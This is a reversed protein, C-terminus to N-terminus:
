ASRGAARDHWHVPALHDYYREVMRTDAHGLNKARRKDDKACNHITLTNRPANRFHRAPDHFEEICLFPVPENHRFTFDAGGCRVDEHM